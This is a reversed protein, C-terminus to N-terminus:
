KFIERSKWGAFFAEIHKVVKQQSIRCVCVDCMITALTMMMVRTLLVDDSTLTMMMM